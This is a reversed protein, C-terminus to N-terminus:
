VRSRVNVNYQIFSRHFINVSDKFTVVWYHPHLSISDKPERDCLYRFAEPKLPLLSPFYSVPDHIVQSSIQLDWFMQTKLHYYPFLLSFRPSVKQTPTTPLPPSRETMLSSTKPPVTTTSAISDSTVTRPPSSSSGPLTLWPPLCGKCTWRSCDIVFSTDNRSWLSVPSLWSKCARHFVHKCYLPFRIRGSCIRTERLPCWNGRIGWKAGRNLCTLLSAHLAHGGAHTM